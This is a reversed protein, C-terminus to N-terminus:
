VCKIKETEETVNWLFAVEVIADGFTWNAVGQTGDALSMSFAELCMGGWTSCDIACCLRNGCIPTSLNSFMSSFYM